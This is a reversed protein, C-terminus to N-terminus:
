LILMRAGLLSPEVCGLNRSGDRCSDSLCSGEENRAFRYRGVASADSGCREVCSCSSVASVVPAFKSWCKMRGLVTLRLVAKPEQVAKPEPMKLDELAMKWNTPHAETLVMAKMTAM